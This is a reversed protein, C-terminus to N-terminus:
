VNGYNALKENYQDQLHTACDFHLTLFVGKTNYYIIKMIIYRHDWCCCGYNLTNDNKRFVHKLTYEIYALLSFEFLLCPMCIHYVM